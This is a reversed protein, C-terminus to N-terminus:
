ENAFFIGNRYFSYNILKQVQEKVGEKEEHLVEYISASCLTGFVTYALLATDCKEIQGAEMAECVYVEIDSIYKQIILRIEMQRLENGWMQSMVVKIFDKHENIFNLQIDYIKKLKNLPSTQNKVEEQVRDKIANMGESIIYNFIEEKSKFYYYITGKAVSADNAIDEMTACSYGNNSFIRIAAQVVADKTKSM